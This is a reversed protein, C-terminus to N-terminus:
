KESRFIARRTISCRPIQYITKHFYRLNFFQSELFSVNYLATAFALPVLDSCSHHDVCPIPFSPVILLDLKAAKWQKTFQFVGVIEDASGCFVQWTLMAIWNTKRKVFMKQGACMPGFYLPWNPLSGNSSSPWFAGFSSLFRISPFELKRNYSFLFRCGVLGQAHTCIEESIPRSPKGRIDEPFLSSWGPELEQVSHQSFSSLL